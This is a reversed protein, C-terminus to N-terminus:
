AYQLEKEKKKNIIDLGLHQTYKQYLEYKEGHTDLEKILSMIKNVKSM